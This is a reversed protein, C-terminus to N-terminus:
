KAKMNAIIESWDPLRFEAWETVLVLADAGVTASMADEKLAAKDGLMHAAEKSAVPDYAQVRRARM